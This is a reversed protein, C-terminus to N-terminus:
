ARQLAAEVWELRDNGWFMDGGVFFTPAGFVGRAIPEDTNARLKNKVEDSEVAAADVGLKDLIARLVADDGLNRREAWIAPFMAAHYTTFRGDREAAVAGRMVRITDIPFYPNLRFKVGYRESWRRLESGMYNRKAPVTVPSSNGTAKFVAGLLIPRYVITAGTRAALGPMRTDALYSFPSGYDFLFEVRKAM